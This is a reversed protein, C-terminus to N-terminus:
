SEGDVSDVIAMVTADAPNFWNALAMAAERGGEYLVRDGQGAQVTDCAVIPTGSPTLDDALPQVLLLKAGELSSDVTSAVVTGIVKGLKM